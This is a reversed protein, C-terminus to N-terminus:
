STIVCLGTQHLPGATADFQMFPRTGPQVHIVRWSLTEEIHGSGLFCERPGEVVVTDPVHVKLRTDPLDEGHIEVAIQGGAKAFPTVKLSLSRKESLNSAGKSM